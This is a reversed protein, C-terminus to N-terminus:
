AHGPATPTPITRLDPMLEARLREIVAQGLQPDSRDAACASCFGQSTMTRAAAGYASMVAVAAPPADRQLRSGCLLCCHVRPRRSHIQQM